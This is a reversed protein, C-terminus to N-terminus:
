EVNGSVEARQALSELLAAESNRLNLEIWHSAGEPDRREWANLIQEHEALAVSPRDGMAAHLLRYRQCHQSLDAILATMRDNGSASHGLLHFERNLEALATGDHRTLAAGAQDLIARLQGIRTDDMNTAALAASTSELVVRIKYIERIEEPSLNSIFAGRHPVITVFGRVELRHLAERLPMRSVGLEAALADQGVKTGAPLDGRIVADRIHDFVIEVMTKYGNAATKSSIQDLM